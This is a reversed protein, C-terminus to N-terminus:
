PKSHDEAPRLETGVTEAKWAEINRTKSSLQVGVAVVPKGLNWFAQHYRKQRIQELAVEASQDLKFELIYVRRSTEVAVDARGESTCPESRVRLGMYSFLLHIAAHFFRVPAKAD